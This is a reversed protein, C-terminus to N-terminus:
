SLRLKREEASDSGRYRQLKYIQEFDLKMFNSFIWLLPCALSKSL